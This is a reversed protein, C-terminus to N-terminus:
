NNKVLVAKQRDSQQIQKLFAELESYQSAPYYGGFLKLHRTYRIRNNESIVMIIYEGFPTSLNINEPQHEITYDEPVIFEVTDADWFSRGIRVAHKREKVAKRPLSYQNLPNLLLFMRKGSITAYGPITLDLKEIVNPIQMDNQIIEVQNIKINSFPITEYYHKKQNELSQYLLGSVNDYQLGSSVTKVTASGNGTEDLHIVMNRFQTNDSLAYSKTRVMIGGSETVLLAYRDDTFTGLYGFPKTNNTCELWITDNDMPVCVIVHNFQQSPYDLWIDPANSGANVLTYFSKIGVAELMSRTYNSLAKCDGYGTQDVDSASFPQYGGIGLQISVYRTTGQLHHYIRRTKEVPDDTDAVLNQLRTITQDSLVDMGELLNGTWLGFDKWSDLRGPHGEYEFEDPAAMVVPLFEEPLPSFLEEEVPKIGSIKWQYSVTKDTSTVSPESINFGKFRFAYGVPVIIKYSSEQVSVSYDNVPLWRPFNIFGDYLCEVEYLVTYPLSAVMPEYYVKRTDDYLSFGSVASEDKFDSGKITKVLQGAADYIYGRYNKVTMGKSYYVVLNDDDTGSDNLITTAERITLRASTSGQVELVRESSRIVLQASAKLSDPIDAVPFVQGSAKMLISVAITFLLLTQKM